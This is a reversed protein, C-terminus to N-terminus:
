PCGLAFKQLFCTFDAVNLVPPTTSGDCNAYPDNTAFKQLFCTFDVVNLIPQTTSGDCNAYCAPVDAFNGWFGGVIELSGNVLHGADFQGITGELLQGGAGSLPGGSNDITFWDANPDGSDGGGPNIIVTHMDIPTAVYHQAQALASTAAGAVALIACAALSTSSRIM